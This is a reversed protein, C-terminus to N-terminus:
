ISGTRKVRLKSQRKFFRRRREDIFATDYFRQGLERFGRELEAVGM